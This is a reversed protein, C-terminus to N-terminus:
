FHYESGERRASSSHSSFPSTLCASSGISWDGSYSESCECVQPRSSSSVSITAARHALLAPPVKVKLVRKKIPIGLNQM